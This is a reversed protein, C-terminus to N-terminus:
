RRYSRIKELAEPTQYKMSHPRGIPCAAICMGCPSIGHVRLEDSRDICKSKDTINEPYVGRTLAGAPCARVCNGCHICVEANLPYDYPLIVDTLVSSYRILSGYEASLLMNNEGFTGLGALYAAHRHSFFASPSERLGDIGHYGDRPIPMADHGLALLEMAIRQTAQDLMANIVKYAEAYAISPATDITAASIPIGIVIVSRANRMISAPRSVPDIRGSVLPDTDWASVPAYGVVGIGMDRLMGKLKSGISESKMYGDSCPYSQM